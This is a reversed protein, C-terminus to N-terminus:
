TWGGTQRWMRSKSSCSENWRLASQAASACMQTLQLSALRAEIPDLKHDTQKSAQKRISFWKSILLIVDAGAIILQSLASNEEANNYPGNDKAM